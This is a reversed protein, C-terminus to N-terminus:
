VNRMEVRATGGDGCHMVDTVGKKVKVTSYFAFISRLLSLVVAAAVFAALVIVYYPREQEEPRQQSWHALWVTVAM